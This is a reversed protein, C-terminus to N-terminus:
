VGMFKSALGKAKAIMAKWKAPDFEALVAAEDDDDDDEDDDDLAPPASDLGAAGKVKSLLGSIDFKEDQALQNEKGPLTHKNLTKIM